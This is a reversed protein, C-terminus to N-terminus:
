IRQAAASDLYLQCPERLRIDLPSFERTIKDREFTEGPRVLLTEVRDIFGPDQSRVESEIRALDWSQVEERHLRHYDLLTVALESGV